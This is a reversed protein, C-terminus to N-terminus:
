GAVLEVLRAAGILALWIAVAMVVLIYRPRAM